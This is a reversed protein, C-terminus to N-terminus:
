LTLGQKALDGFHCYLTFLLLVQRHSPCMLGSCLVTTELAYLSMRVASGGFELSIKGYMAVLATLKNCNLLAM